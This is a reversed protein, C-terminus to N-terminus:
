QRKLNNNGICLSNVDMSKGKSLTECKNEINLQWIVVRHPKEDSKAVIVQKKVGIASQLNRGIDKHQV